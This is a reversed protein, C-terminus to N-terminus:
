TDKRGAIQGIRGRTLGTAEAIQAHTLGAAIAARIATNRTERRGEAVAAARRYDAELERLEGATM